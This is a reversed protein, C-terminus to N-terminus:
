TLALRLFYSIHCCFRIVLPQSILRCLEYSDPSPQERTARSLISDFKLCGYSREYHDSKAWVYRIKEAQDQSLSIIEVCETRDRVTQGSISRLQNDTQTQSHHCCGPRVTHSHLLQSLECYEWCQIEPVQINERLLTTWCRQMRDAPIELASLEWDGCSNSNRDIRCLQQTSDTLKAWILRYLLTSDSLIPSSCLECGRCLLWTQSQTSATLLVRLVWNRPSTYKRLLATWCRQM